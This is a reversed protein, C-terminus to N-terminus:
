TTGPPPRVDPSGHHLLKNRQLEVWAQQAQLPKGQLVAGYRSVLHLFKEIRTTPQSRQEVATAILIDPRPVECGSFQHFKEVFESGELDEVGDWFHPCAEEEELVGFPVLVGVVGVVRGVQTPAEGLGEFHEDKRFALVVFDHRAVLDTLEETVAARLQRIQLRQIDVCLFRRVDVREVVDVLVVAFVKRAQRGSDIASQPSARSSNSPSLTRAFSASSAATNQPTQAAPLPARHPIPHSPTPPKSAAIALLVPTACPRFKESAWPAQPPRPNRHSISSLMARDQHLIRAIQKLDSASFTDDPYLRIDIPAPYTSKSDEHHAAEKSGNDKDKDKSSSHKVANKASGARSAPKDAPAPIEWSANFVGTAPGNNNAGTNWPDAGSTNAAAAGWADGGSNEGAINWPDDANSGAKSKASKKSSKDNNGRATDGVGGSNDAGGWADGSNGGGWANATDGDQKNDGGITDGWGGGGGGGSTGGAADGSGEKKEEGSTAGWADNGGGWANATDGSTEDKKQEKGKDKKGGGGGGGSAKPPRWDKPKIQGFRAKCLGLEKGLETAIHAWPHNAESNKLEMLKADDAETFGHTNSKDNKSSKDNKQNSTDNFEKKTDNATDDGAFAGLLDGFGAESAAKLSPAKTEVEKSPEKPPVGALAATLRVKGKGNLANRRGDSAAWELIAGPTTMMKVYENPKPPRPPSPPKSEKFPKNSVGLIWGMSIRRPPENPAM